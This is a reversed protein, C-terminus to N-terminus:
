LAQGLSFVPLYMALVVGGVLLGLVVMLLPELLSSLGRLGEDLASGEYEAVKALMADLAGSEEGIEVMQVVLPAFLAQSELAHSFRSGGLLSQRIRLSAQEFVRNGSAGAVAPLAEVLPVGAAFLTALTRAWRATAAKHALPGLLPLHLLLRDMTHQMTAHRRLRSRLALAGAALALLLWPGHVQLWRSAEIVLLTPWPLAAGLSAFTQEFSPIVWLMLAAVVGIAVLLVALPYLLAARIRAQLATAQELDQALRSLVTDLTGSLEGAEVVSCYLTDFHHPHQRLAQHLAQGQEVADHVAQLIGSFFPSSSRIALDLCQLLPVGARHMTALQRTFRALAAPSARGAVWFPAPQIRIHHMGKRLLRTRLETASGAQWLGRQRQGRSDLAQWRFGRMGSRLSASPTVQEPM